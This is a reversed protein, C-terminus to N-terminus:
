RGGGTDPAGTVIVVIPPRSLWYAAAKRVEAPTISAFVDQESTLDKVAAGGDSASADLAAAWVDNSALQSALRAVYPKRVTEVDQDTFDGRALRAAIAAMEGRVLEVDARTVEAVAALRGQDADDPMRTQAQPGYSKGLEGRIRRLMADEYLLSLLRLAYEERRRAPEAVYLPWVLAVAAKEPPGDHPALIVPQPGDPYRLFWADPRAPPPSRRPPLAGFTAAVAKVAQPEDIDGVIVVDLASTTLAPRMVRELDAVTLGTAAQAAKLGTPNGPEIADVLVPEILALPNARATRMTDPWLTALTPDLDHFGPHTALAAMVQLAQPAGSPAITSSMVFYRDRVQTAIELGYDRFLTHIDAYSDGDVGGRFLLPAGIEAAFYDAPALGARGHGFRVRIAVSHTQFSTRKFSLRVGNAFSVRVFDAFVERKVVTGDRGFSAYRWVPAASPAIAVAPAAQAALWAQRVVAPPPPSPALVDILPGAGSWDRLFAAHVDTPALGEAAVDFARLAELPSSAVQGDLMAALIGNALDSSDRTAAGLMAGRLIARRSKLATELEDETPPTAALAAVETELTALGKEWADGMPVGGLCAERAQGRLEGVVASGELLGGQPSKAATAFRADAISTWMQSATERRLWAMDRGSAATSSSLRCAALVSPLHPGALNMVELGRSGDIRAAEVPAGAAGRPRWSGFAGQVRAELEDLSEDGIVVVVANQPQYWRDYFAQLQPAALSSISALSGVGDGRALRTGPAQFALVRAQLDTLDSLRAEREALIVGRERDVAEATLRAGDAVQRLWRFGLDLAAPDGHPLDIKFTTDFSSTQANRDRGFAVGADAFVKETQAQLQAQSGGFAMHELFHAAGLQDDPDALSGAAIGLRISVGHAPTANRMVAYRLGNPLVGHRIAPDWRIQNADTPPQEIIPDAAAASALGFLLTALALWRIIAGM